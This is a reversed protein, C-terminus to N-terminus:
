FKSVEVGEMDIGMETLADFLHGVQRLYRDSSSRFTRELNNADPRYYYYSSFSNVAAIGPAPAAAGELSAELVEDEVTVELEGAAVIEQGPFLLCEYSKLRERWLCDRDTGRGCPMPGFRVRGYKDVAYFYWGPDLDRLVEATLARLEQTDRGEDMFDYFARQIDSQNRDSFTTKERHEILWEVAGGGAKFATVGEAVDLEMERSSAALEEFEAVGRRQDNYKGFLDAKDPAGVSSAKLEPPKDEGFDTKRLYQSVVAAYEQIPLDRDGKWIPFYCERAWIMWRDMNVTLFHIDIVKKGLKATVPAGAYGVPLGPLFGTHQETDIVRTFPSSGSILMRAAETVTVDHPVIVRFARVLRAFDENTGGAPELPAQVRFGKGDPFITELSKIVTLGESFNLDDPRTGALQCHGSAPLLLAWALLAAALGAVASGMHDKM